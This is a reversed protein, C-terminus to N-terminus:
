FPIEAELHNSPESGLQLDILIKASLSLFEDRDMFIVQRRQSIDLKEVLWARAARTIEAASIVYVHDILVKRGSDPDFVPHDIAMRVQNLVTAMNTDGSVGKADLKERKIQAAFYIWHGTPLLYKMWLDIGYELMKEVHGSASVRHFGLRQFLPVLLRETLEDESASELFAEVAKRQLLEEASLPRPEQERASSSVGTGDNRVQCRGAPDFYVQLCQKSLVKNLVELAGERSKKCRDFEDVDFLEIIVRLISDSPLDAASNGALNLEQLREKAWIRRTEGHHVFEFGCRRFFETMRSSSRYPFAENDGVVIEGLQEILYDRLRM